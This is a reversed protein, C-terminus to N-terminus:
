KSLQWYGCVKGTQDKIDEKVPEDKHKALHGVMDAATKIIFAAMAVYGEKIDIKMEAKM